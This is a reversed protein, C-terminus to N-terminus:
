FFVFIYTYCFINGFIKYEFFYDSGAYFILVSFYISHLVFRQRLQRKQDGLEVVQKMRRNVLM